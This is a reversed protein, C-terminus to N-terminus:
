IAVPGYCLPWIGPQLREVRAEGLRRWQLGRTEAGM